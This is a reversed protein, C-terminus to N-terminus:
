EEFNSMSSIEILTDQRSSHYDPPPSPKKSIKSTRSLLSGALSARSASLEEPLETLFFSGNMSSEESNDGMEFRARKLSSNRRVRADPKVKNLFPPPQMQRITHAIPPQQEFSINTPPFFMAHESSRKVTVGSHLVPRPHEAPTIPRQFSSTPRYAETIDSPLPMPHDSTSMFNSKPKAAYPAAITERASVAETTPQPHTRQPAGATAPRLLNSTTTSRRTTNADERITVSKRGTTMGTDPRPEDPISVKLASKTPLPLNKPLPGGKPVVYRSPKPHPTDDDIDTSRPSRGMTTAPRPSPTGTSPLSRPSIASTSRPSRNTLKSIMVSSAKFLKATKPAKVRARSSADDSRTSQIASSATSMKRGKGKTVIKKGPQKKLSLPPVPTEEQVYPFPIGEEKENQMKRFGYQSKLIDTLSMTDPKRYMLQPLKKPIPINVPLPLNKRSRGHASETYGFQSLPYSNQLHKRGPVRYRVAHEIKPFDFTDEQPYEYPNVFTGDAWLAYPDYDFPGVHEDEKEKLEQNSIQSTRGEEMTEVEPKDRKVTGNAQYKTKAIVPYGKEDFGLVQRRKFYVNYAIDPFDTYLSIRDAEM